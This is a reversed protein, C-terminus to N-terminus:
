LWQSKDGRPREPNSGSIGTVSSKNLKKYFSKSENNSRLHELEKLEQEIFIKKKRKHVRKEDIRATRYEEVAKLTIGKNCGKIHL